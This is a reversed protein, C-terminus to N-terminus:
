LRSSTAINLFKKIIFGIFDMYTTIHVGKCTQMKSFIRKHCIGIDTVEINRLELFRPESAEGTRYVQRKRGKVKIYVVTMAFVEWNANGEELGKKM